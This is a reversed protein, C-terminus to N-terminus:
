TNGKFTFEHMILGSAVSISVHREREKGGFCSVAAFRAAALRRLHRQPAHEDRRLEPALHVLQRPPRAQDELREDVQQVQVPRLGVVVLRVQAVEVLLQVHDELQRGEHLHAHRHRGAHEVVERGRGAGAHVVRDLLLGLHRQVPVGLLDVLRQVRLPLLGLVHQGLALGHRRGVDLLEVVHVRHRQRAPRSAARERLRLVVLRDPRPPVVPQPARADLEGHERHQLPVLRLVAPHRDVRALRGRRGVPVLHLPLPDRVDEPAGDDVVLPQHVRDVRVVVAHGQVRVQRRHRPALHPQRVPEAGGGDEHDAYEHEEDDVGEDGPQQVDNIMVPLGGVDPELVLHRHERRGEAVRLAVDLPSVHVATPVRHRQSTPRKAM